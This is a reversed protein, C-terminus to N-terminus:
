NSPKAIEKEFLSNAKQLSEVILRILDPETTNGNNANSLIPNANSTIALNGNCPLLSQWNINLAKSIQEIRTLSIQVTGNEIHSLASVSLGLSNAVTVLKIGADIRKQKINAAVLKNLNM